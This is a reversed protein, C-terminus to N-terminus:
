NFTYYPVHRASWEKLNELLKDNKEKKKLMGGICGLKGNYAGIGVKFGKSDFYEAFKTEHHDICYKRSGPKLDDFWKKFVEDNFLNKSVIVFWSLMTFNDKNKSRKDHKIHGYLDYDMSMALWERWTNAYICSNNALIVHTYHSLENRFKNLGHKWAGLDWGKNERTEVIVNPLLEADKLYQTGPGNNVIYFHIDNCHDKVVHYDDEDFSSVAFLCAANIEPTSARFCERDPVCICLVILVLIMVGAIILTKMNLILLYRLHIVTIAQRISMRKDIEM